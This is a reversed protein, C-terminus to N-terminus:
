KGGIFKVLRGRSCHDSIDCYRECRIGGWNEKSNCPIDWRDEELAASLFKAKEMFYYKVDQDDLKRIPIRYINKYVGRNHAIYLGGDRVTVQLEMRHVTLGLAELMIRYRNLQLEVEWNDAKEPVQKFVPIMKPSGEKGWKGSAKYVAGGPDPQKGVEEIGLVKVLKFSGWLKYDTLVLKKDEFEILDFIDRDISMPIEAALGLEKAVQELGKHHKTGQLMFARSDPDVYYPKTLKLYELMTGNLLQTTSAIGSWERERSISVLTPLTLCREGLRCGELCDELQVQEGDPCWFGALM